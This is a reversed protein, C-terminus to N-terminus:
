IVSRFAGNSLSKEHALNSLNILDVGSEQRALQNHLGDVLISSREIPVAYQLPACNLNDRSNLNFLKNTSTFHASGVFTDKKM